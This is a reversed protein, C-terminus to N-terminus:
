HHINIILEAIDRFLTNCINPQLPRNAQEISVIIAYQPTYGCADTKYTGDELIATRSYAVVETKDSALQKGLVAAM